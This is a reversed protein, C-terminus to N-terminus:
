RAKRAVGALGEHERLLRELSDLLGPEFRAVDDVRFLTLVQRGAPTTVVRFSSELIRQKRGADLDARLCVMGLPFEPSEALTVLDRGLQPNLEVATAHANANVVCADTRRFFVPLLAKSARTDERAVGLFEAARPLGERALLTDLWVTALDDASRLIALSRGRLDALTKLGSERHVLLVQRDAARGGKLGVLAPELLAGGEARLYDLSNLAVVDLTGARVQRLMESLDDYITAMTPGPIGSARGLERAWISVAAEADARSVDFLLRTSYGM